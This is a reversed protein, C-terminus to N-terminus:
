RAGRRAGVAVSTSSAYPGHSRESAQCTQRAGDRDVMASGMSNRTEGAEILLEHCMAIDGEIDTGMDSVARESQRPGARTHNGQLRLVEEVAEETADHGRAHRDKREGGAGRDSLPPQGDGAKM